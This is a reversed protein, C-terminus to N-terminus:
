ASVVRWFYTAGPASQRFLARTSGFVSISRLWGMADEDVYSHCFCQNQKWRRVRLLQEHWGHAKPTMIWWKRGKALSMRKLAVHLKLFRMGLEFMEDAVAQSRAQFDKCTHAPM